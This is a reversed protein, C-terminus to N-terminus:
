CVGDGVGGARGEMQVENIVVGKGKGMRVWGLDGGRWEM